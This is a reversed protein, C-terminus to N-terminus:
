RRVDGPDLDRPRHDGAPRGRPPESRAVPDEPEDASAPEGVVHEHVLEVHGAHRLLEVLEGRGRHGLREHRRVIGHQGLGTEPRALQEDDVACVAADASRGHLDRRSGSGAHERRHARRLEALGNGREACRHDVRGLENRPRLGLTAGIDHELEDAPWVEVRIQEGQRRLPPDHDDARAGAGLRREVEALQHAPPRAQEPRHQAGPRQVLLRRRHAGEGALDNRM